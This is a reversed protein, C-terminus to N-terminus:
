RFMKKLWKAVHSEKVAELAVQVLAETPLEGVRSAMSLILRGMPKPGRGSINKHKGFLSEIIESSGVVCKGQPIKKGEEEIFDILDCSFQEARPCLDRQALSDGLEDYCDKSLGKKRIFDRTERGVDVLQGWCELDQEYRKIWQVKEQRDSSLDDYKLLLTRAWDVLVDINHYRAKSRQNPPSTDAYETLQVQKKFDSCQKTFENWSDDDTLQQEYLRAIKHPVDHIDIVGPHAECFRKGGCRIDSGQDKVIALPPIGHNAQLIEEFEAEMLEGNSSKMPVIGLPEVDELSITLDGKQLLSSM